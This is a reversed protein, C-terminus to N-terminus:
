YQQKYLLSRITQLNNKVRHHIEKLLVEKEELASKLETENKKRETIDLFSVVGSLIEDDKSRVPSANFLVTREIGDAGCILMEENNTEVGQLVAKPLPLNELEWPKGDPYFM